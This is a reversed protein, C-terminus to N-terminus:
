ARREAASLYVLPLLLWLLTSAQRGRRRSPCARAASGTIRGTVDCNCDGGGADCSGSDCSESDCSSTDCSQDDSNDDCSDCSDTNTSTSACGSACGSCSDGECASCSSHAPPTQVVIGFDTSGPPTNDTGTSDTALSGPAPATARRLSASAAWASAAAVRAPGGGGDPDDLAALAVLWSANVYVTDGVAIAAAPWGTVRELRTAGAARVLGRLAVGARGRGDLARLELDRTTAPAAPGELPPLPPLLLEEDGDAFPAM